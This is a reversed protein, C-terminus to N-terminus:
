VPQKCLRSTGQHTECELWCKGTVRYDGYLVHRHPTAPRWTLSGNSQCFPLQRQNGLGWGLRHLLMHMIGVRTPITGAEGHQLYMYRYYTREMVLPNRFSYTMSADQSCTHHILNWARSLNLCRAPACVLCWKGGPHAM